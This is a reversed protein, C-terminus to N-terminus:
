VLIIFTKGNHAVAMLLLIMGLYHAFGFIFWLNLCCFYQSKYCCSCVLSSPLSFLRRALALASLSFLFCILPAPLYHKDFRSRVENLGAFDSFLMRFAPKYNRNYYPCFILLYCVLYLFGYRAQRLYFRHLVLASGFKIDHRINSVVWVM